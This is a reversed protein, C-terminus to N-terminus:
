SPNQYLHHQSIYGAVASPVLERLATARSAPDAFRGIADIIRVREAADDIRTKITRIPQLARVQQRAELMRTRTSELGDFHAVVAEATALTEPEELVM